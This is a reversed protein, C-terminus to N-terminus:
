QGGILEGTTRPARNVRWTLATAALRLHALTTRFINMKSTGAVRRRLVVPVEVARYGQSLARLLVETVAEFGDSEFCVTQVVRRRYARLFSTYSFLRSGTVSRYLLSCARSILLRWPVVNEVGGQPHYPSGIAIDVGDAELAEILRPVDMPDFTCDADILCIVDGKAGEFGTRMAAGPGRNRGHVLLETGPIQELHEKVRMITQDKSGDDVLVFEVDHRPSMAERLCVLRQALRSVGMEENYLPVVVSILM